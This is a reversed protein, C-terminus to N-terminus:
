EVLTVDGLSGNIFILSISKESLGETPWAYVLVRRGSGDVIDSFLAGEGGIIAVVQEYSLGDLLQDLEAQAVKAIEPEEQPPPAPETPQTQAPTSSPKSSSSSKSGSSAAAAPAAPAGAPKAPTAKAAPTRGPTGTASEEVATEDSAPAESNGGGKKMFFFVAAAVLVLVVVVAILAMPPKSKTREEKDEIQAGPLKGPLPQAQQPKAGKPPSPYAAGSAGPAPWHVKAKPQTQVKEAAELAMEFETMRPQEAM